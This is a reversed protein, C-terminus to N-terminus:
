LLRLLYNPREYKLPAESGPLEANKEPSVTLRPTINVQIDFLQQKMAASVQKNKDQQYLSTKMPIKTPILVLTPAKNQLNEFDPIEV